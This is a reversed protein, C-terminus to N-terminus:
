DWAEGVRHVFIIISGHSLQEVYLRDVARNIPPHCMTLKAIGAVMQAGVPEGDATELKCIDGVEIDTGYWCFYEIVYKDVGPVLGLAIWVDFDEDAEVPDGTIIINHGILEATTAM